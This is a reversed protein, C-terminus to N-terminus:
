RTSRPREPSLKPAVPHDRSTSGPGGRTMFAAEQAAYAADRFGPIVKTETDFVLAARTTPDFKPWAIGDPCTPVGTKAFAVWCGHVTRALAFDAPSLTSAPLPSRNLTEFVFLVEEGHPARPFFAHAAPPVYSFEYLWTPAGASAKGAFWRAPAGMVGDRFINREILANDAGPYAAKVAEVEAPPTRALVAAGGHPGLLSDEGDNSGIVLPVHAIRGSAFAQAAGRRIMRGDLMPGAAATFAPTAIASLPLARLEAATATRPLGAATAAEVGLAEQAALTPPTDWGGGSEVIAQAFLGKAAPSGMLLLIDQGGASEGFVTVRKPDGGFAAINDSVWKLAAVQDMLGYNGLPEDARADRTLAPHAFFGLAGLRYNMSVLIVGDRAFATGDYYPASSAGNTNGGGHIWVMVPAKRANTPAWVNLTLCDEGIPGTGAGQLPDGIRPQPCAAGFATAERPASWASSAVPPAWRLPGVPPRAYPIGKFTSVGDATVGVIPGSQVRVTPSADTAQATSALTLTLGLGMWAARTRFGLRM